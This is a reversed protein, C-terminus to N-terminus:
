KLGAQQLLPTQNTMELHDVRSRLAAFGALSQQLLTKLTQIEAAQNQITKQQDQVVKTVVAVIDMPSLGKRNPTAVLEPVEEAIFGVKPDDQENKYNFTKPSLQALAERAAESSLDFINEKFERSSADTWVGGDTVYAGSAMHLPYDPSATGIGLCGDCEDNYSSNLRMKEVGSEMFVMHGGNTKLTLSASDNTAEIYLQNNSQYIQGSSRGDGSAISIVGPTGGDASDGVQLLSEPSDTGIGVYGDSTILMDPDISPGHETNFYIGGGDKENVIAMNNAVESNPYDAGYYSLWGAYSGNDRFGIYTSHDTAHSDLVVGAHGATNKVYLVNDNSSFDDSGIGINGATYYLDNGTLDLCRDELYTFNDNVESAYITTGSTFSNPVTGAHATTAATTLSIAAILIKGYDNM